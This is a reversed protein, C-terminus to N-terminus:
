IHILSLCEVCYKKVEATIDQKQMNKILTLKAKSAPLIEVAQKAFATVADLQQIDRDEPKGMAARSLADATIQEKDSVHIVTPNYRMLRLKFRQLRPPMRAVGKSNLLPVLSKHNTRIVFDLGGLLHIRRVAAEGVDSHLGREQQQDAM